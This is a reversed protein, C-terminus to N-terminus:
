HDKHEEKDEYMDYLTHVLDQLHDSSHNSNDEECKDLNLQFIQPLHDLQCLKEKLTLSSIDM